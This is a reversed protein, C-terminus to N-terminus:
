IPPVRPGGPWRQGKIPSSSLNAWRGGGVFRQGGGDLWTSGRRVDTWNQDSCNLVTTSFGFSLGALDGARGGSFGPSTSTANESPRQEAWCPSLGDGSRSAPAFSHPSPGPGLDGASVASQSGALPCIFSFPHAQTVAGSVMPPCFPRRSQSLLLVHVTPCGAWSDCSAEPGFSWSM